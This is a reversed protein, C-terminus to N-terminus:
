KSAAAKEVAKVDFDQPGGSPGVERDFESEIKESDKKKAGKAAEPGAVTLNAMFPDDKHAEAAAGGAGPSSPAKTISVKYKGPVVGSRGGTNAKYNGQPGTMDEAPRGEKNSADPTFRVLAGELPKGNLTVNGTVPVLAPGTDGGCGVVCFALFGAPILIRM